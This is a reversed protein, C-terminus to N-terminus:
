PPRCPCGATPDPITTTTMTVTAVGLSPRRVVRVPKRGRWGDGPEFACADIYDRILPPKVLIDTATDCSVSPAFNVEILWPRIDEDILIDFGAVPPM